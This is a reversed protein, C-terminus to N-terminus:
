LAAPEHEKKVKNHLKRCTEEPLHLELLGQLRGHKYPM